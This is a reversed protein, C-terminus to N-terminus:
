PYPHLAERLIGEVVGLPHSDAADIHEVGYEVARRAPGVSDARGTPPEWMRLRTLRMAGFGLRAVARGAVELTDRVDTM